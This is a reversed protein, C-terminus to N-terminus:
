IFGICDFIHGPASTYMWEVHSAFAGSCIYRGYQVYIDWQVEVTIHM